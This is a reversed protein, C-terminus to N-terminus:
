RKSSGSKHDSIGILGLAAFAIALYLVFKWETVDRGILRFVLFFIIAILGLMLLIVSSILSWKSNM